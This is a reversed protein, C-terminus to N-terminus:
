FKNQVSQEDKAVPKPRELVCAGSKDLSIIDQCCAGDCNWRCKYNGCVVIKDCKIKM